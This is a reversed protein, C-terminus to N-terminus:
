ARVPAPRIEPFEVMQGDMGAVLIMARDGGLAHARALVEAARFAQLESRHRRIVQRRLRVQWLGDVRRVVYVQVAM